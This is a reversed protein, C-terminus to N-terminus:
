AASEYALSGATIREQGDPTALLLAGDEALATFSGTLDRLGATIRVPQGLRWAHSEWASRIAAFGQQELQTLQCSLNQLLLDLVEPV